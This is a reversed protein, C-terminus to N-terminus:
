FVQLRNNVRDSVYLFGDADITIGYPHDFQGEGSGRSGFSTVFKGNKTFVSVCHGEYETVYVLDSDMCVHVFHPTHLGLGPKDAGISHLHQFDGQDSLVQICHDLADCIYLKTDKDQTLACGEFGIKTTKLFELDKTFVVLRQREREVVIVREEAVVVGYCQNEKVEAHNILEFHKNFKYVKRAEQDTVYINNDKDVAVGWPIELHYNHGHREIGTHVTKGDKDLVMIGGNFEAIILEDFSNFVIGTPGRLENIIRVPKGLQTPSIKVFVSFPSGAVEQGNVFIGLQHRGRVQPTCDIEYANGQKLTIKAHIVSHDVHSTLTAEVNVPKRQPKGSKCRAHLFVRFPKMVEITQSDLRDVTCKTPDVLTTTLKMMQCMQRLEKSCNVEVMMDAEEVPDYENTEKMWKSVQDHVAFLKEDSFNEVMSKEEAVKGQIKHMYEELEKKQLSLRGLKEQVHASATNLLELKRHDLIEYLEHFSQEIVKEVSAGQSEIESRSTETNKIAAQLLSEQESRFQELKQLIQIKLNARETMHNLQSEAFLVYIVHSYM